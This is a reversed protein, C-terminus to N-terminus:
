HNGAKPHKALCYVGPSTEQICVHAFVGGSGNDCGAGKSPRTCGSARNFHYCVNDGNFKATKSRVQNGGRAGATSGGRKGGGRGRNNGDNRQGERGNSDARGGSRQYFAARKELAETWREKAERASLPPDRALARRANERFAGDIFDTVLRRLL